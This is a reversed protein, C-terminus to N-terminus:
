DKKIWKTVDKWVDKTRCTGMGGFFGEVALIVYIPIILMAKITKKVIIIM